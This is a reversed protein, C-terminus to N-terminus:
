TMRERRREAEIFVRGCRACRWQLFHERDLVFRTLQM